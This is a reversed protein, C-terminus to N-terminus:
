INLKNKLFYKFYFFVYKLAFNLYTIDLHLKLILYFIKRLKLISSLDFYIDINLKVLTMFLM